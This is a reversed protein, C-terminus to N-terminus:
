VRLTFTCWIRQVYKVSRLHSNVGFDTNFLVYDTDTANCSNVGIKTNPYPTVSGSKCHSTLKSLIFCITVSYRLLM